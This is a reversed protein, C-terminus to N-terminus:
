HVGAASSLLCMCQVARQPCGQPMRCAACASAPAVMVPRVQVVMSYMAGLWSLPTFVQSVYTLMAVFNGTTMRGALVDSAAFLMVSATAGRIIASQAINLAVLSAQQERTAVQYLKVAASYRQLEYEADSASM